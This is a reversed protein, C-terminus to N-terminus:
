FNDWLRKEAEMDKNSCWQEMSFDIMHGFRRVIPSRLKLPWKKKHQKLAGLVARDVYRLHHVVAAINFDIVRVEVQIDCVPIDPKDYGSGLIMINRPCLDRHEVGADYMLSKATMVKKLIISQVEDRLDTADIHDMCEGSLREMLIFRVTRTRKVM